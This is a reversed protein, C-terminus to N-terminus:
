PNEQLWAQVTPALPDRPAIELFRRYYKRANAVQGEMRSCTLGLAYHTAAHNPQSDLVKLLHDEAARYEKLEILILGLNYRANLLDPQIALAQLYSEKALKRDGSRSYVTALNYYANAFTNDNEIARRYYYIARDWDERDQYVIARNYAQVAAATNRLPSPTISLADDGAGQKRPPPEPEPTDKPRPAPKPAPPPPPPPPPAEARLRQELSSMRDRVQVVRPDDPFLSEFERYRAVAQEAVGLHEDYLVALQWLADANAPDIRVARKLAVLAADLEGTQMAAEALGMHASTSQPELSLAQTFAERAHDYRGVELLYYGWAEQARENQPALGVATRLAKERDEQHSLRRAREAAEFCFEIAKDADGREALENAEQLLDAYSRRQEAGAPEEPEPTVPEVVAESPPASEPAGLRKLAVRASEVKATDRGVQVYRHYFAVAESNHSGDKEYLMALNLLAPPYDPDLELARMLHAAAEFPGSARLEAEALATLVSPYNPRLELARLLVGRAEAWNGNRLHLHGLFELPRVDEPNLRFAEEFLTRAQEVKGGEFYLVALNYTPEFLSPNLRRSEEFEEIARDLQGMRSSAVGLYNYTAANEEGAPRASVSKELLVKARAFNGAALEELGQQYAREGPTDGCAAILIAGVACAPLWWRWGTIWDTLM